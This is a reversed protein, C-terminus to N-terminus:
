KIFRMTVGRTVANIKLATNPMESKLTSREARVAAL